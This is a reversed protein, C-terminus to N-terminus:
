TSGVGRVADVRGDYSGDEWLSEMVDTPDWLFRLGAMVSTSGDFTEPALVKILSHNNKLNKM